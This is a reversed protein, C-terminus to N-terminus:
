NKGTLLCTHRSGCSATKVHMEDPLDLGYPVAQVQVSDLDQYFKLQVCDNCVLGPVFQIRSVNETLSYQDNKNDTIKETVEGIKRESDQDLNEKSDYIDGTDKTSEEHVEAFKRKCGERKIIKSENVICPNNTARDGYEPEKNGLENDTAFTGSIDVDTYSSNIKQNEHTSM